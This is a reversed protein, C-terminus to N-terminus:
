LLFKRVDHNQYDATRSGKFVGNTYESGLPFGELPRRIM